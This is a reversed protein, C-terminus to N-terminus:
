RLPQLHDGEASGLTMGGDCRVIDGTMYASADSALFLALDAIDTVAGFRRLPLGAQLTEGFQKAHVLRDMGETGAIPGPSIANVRIGAPGWEMALCQVLMNVGAKAASAHAQRATPREGCPATIAILSAPRALLDFSARFVNFTGILDIDVVTRFANASLGVAPAIFNGAAGSVVIDIPGFVSAVTRLSAEVAAYDRVDAELGLANAGAETITQAAAEIRERNRSILAVRAGAHALRQAIALNIGGSGGAVFATKGKLVQERFIDDM